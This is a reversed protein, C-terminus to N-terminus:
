RESNIFKKLFPFMAGRKTIMEERSKQVVHEDILAAQVEEELLSRTVRYRDEQPLFPETSSSMFVSFGGRTRRAWAQERSYQARYVEAANVRVELFSGWEAGRTLWNNHRVYCGVGCLARGFTCGRYPQLSHSTVTRLFGSTRTLVGKVEVQTIRPRKGFQPKPSM